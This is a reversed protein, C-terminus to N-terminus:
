FLSITLYALFFKFPELVENTIDDKRELVCQYIYIYM